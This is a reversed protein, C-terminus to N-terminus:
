FHFTSFNAFIQAQWSLSALALLSLSTGLQGLSPVTVKTWGSDVRLVTSGYGKLLQWKPPWPPPWLAISARGGSCDPVLFNCSRRGEWLASATPANRLGCGVRSIPCHPPPVTLLPARAAPGRPSMDSGKEPGDQVPSPLPFLIFPLSSLHKSM